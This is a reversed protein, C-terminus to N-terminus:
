LGQESALRAFERIGGESGIEYFREAVEYGALDGALSLRHLVDALDVRVGAPIREAVVDRSIVSLGYDIYKMRRKVGDDGKKDYLTVLPAEFVANSADWRNENRMVTMLAPKGSARFAHVVPAISIQLYSDGYLVLFSEALLGADLAVRLAGGTGKLHEGEDAYRVQLRFRSGDGIARRIQDGLFGICYVVDSVGQGALWELQYAAFPRDNIAILTKPIRETLPWLRTALGGALIVCQM